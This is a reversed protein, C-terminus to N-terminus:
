EVAWSEATPKAMQVPVINVSCECRENIVPKDEHGEPLVEGDGGLTGEAEEVTGIEVSMLVDIRQGNRVSRVMGSRPM